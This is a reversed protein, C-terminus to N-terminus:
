KTNDVVLRLGSQRKQPIRIGGVKYVEFVRFVESTQADVLEVDEGEEDMLTLDLQMERFQEVGYREKFLKIISMLSEVAEEASQHGQFIINM